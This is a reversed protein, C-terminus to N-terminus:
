TTVRRGVQYVFVAGVVILISLSFLGLSKFDVIQLMDIRALGYMIGGALSIALIIMSGCFVSSVLFEDNIEWLANVCLMGLFAALYVGSVYALSVVTDISVSFVSEVSTLYSIFHPTMFVIAHVFLYIIVFTAFTKLISKWVNSNSLLDYFENALSVGIRYLYVIASSILQWITETVKMIALLIVNLVIIIPQLIAEILSNPEDSSDSLQLNPLSPIAPRGSRISNLVAKILLLFLFLISVIIRIDLIFHVQSPIFASSAYPFFKTQGMTIVIGVIVWVVYLLTLAKEWASDVKELANSVAMIGILLLSIWFAVSSNTLIMVVIPSVFLSSLLFIVGLEQINESSNDTAFAFWGIAIIIASVEIVLQRYFTEFTLTESCVLVAVALNFLVLAIFVYIGLRKDQPDNSSIAGVAM